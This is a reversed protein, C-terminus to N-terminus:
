KGSARTTKPPKAGSPIKDGGALSGYLTTAFAELHQMTDCYASYTMRKRFEETLARGGVVLATDAARCADSLAAFDTIFDLGDRIHSVSLWFLAPKTDQVSKVLSSIPISSGLSTAYLGCDRLVLEAMAVPLAYQDGEITGGIAVWKREPVRQVRRLDFLIRLAIECGRREQYVEADHCAWRDGIDRFAAAIVEDFIVSRSHKALYLDFVIQRARLEDGALLAEVLRPGGYKLGASARESVAPLGLIEPSVLRQGHERVYRVVEAIAMKRHGGATRVTEILGQDCWRKLSSESVGIARAVQKPSVLDASGKDM